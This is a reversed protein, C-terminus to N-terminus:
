ADRGGAVVGDGWGTGHGPRREARFPGDDPSEDDQETLDYNLLVIGTAVLPVVYAVPSEFSIPLLDVLLLGAGLALVVLGWKLGSEECSARRHM